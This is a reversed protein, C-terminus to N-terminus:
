KQPSTLESIRRNLDAIKQNATGKEPLNNEVICNYYSIANQLSQPNNLDQEYLAALSLLAKAVLPELSKKVDPASVSKWDTYINNLARMAIRENEELNENQELLTNALGFSARIRYRLPLSKEELLQEFTERAAQLTDKQEQSEQVPGFAKAKAFLMEGKRGLASLRLLPTQAHQASSNYAEVVATFDEPKTAQLSLIDGKLYYARAVIKKIGPETIEEQTKFGPIRELYDLAEKEKKLQVSALACEFFARTKVQPPASASQAALLYHHLANEWDSAPTYSDAVHLHLEALMSSSSYDQFFLAADERAKETEQNVFRLIARQFLAEERQPAKEDTILKTLIADARPFDNAKAAALFAELPARERIDNAKASEALKELDSAVTLLQEPENLGKRLAICRQLEADDRNADDPFNKLFAAFADAADTYHKLEMLLLGMQFTAVATQPATPYNQIINQYLAITKGAEATIKSDQFIEANAQAARLLAAARQVDDTGRDRAQLFANKAREMEGLEFLCEACNMAAEYLRQPSASKLTTIERFLEMAQNKDNKRCLRALAETLELFETSDRFNEALRARAKQAERIDEKQLFIRMEQSLLYRMADKDIAIREATAYVALAEDLRHAEFAADGYVNLTYWWEQEYKAPLNPLIKQFLEKAEAFKGIQAYTQIQLLTGMLEDSSSLHPINEALIREADAFLNSASYAQITRRLIAIKQNAQPFKANFGQMLALMRPWDKQRACADATLILAEERVEMTTDERDLLPTTKAFITPLDNKQFAIQAVLLDLEDRLEQPIPDKSAASHAAIVEEAQPIRNLKLCVRAFQITGRAFNPEEPRVTEIYKAYHQLAADLLGDQVAITAKEWLVPASNEQVQPEEFLFDEPADAALLSVACIFLFVSLTNKM